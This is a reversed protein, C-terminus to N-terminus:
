ISNKLKLGPYSIMRVRQSMFIVIQESINLISPILTQIQSMKIPM